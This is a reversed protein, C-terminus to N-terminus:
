EGDGDRGNAVTSRNTKTGLRSSRTTSSAAKRTSMKVAAPAPTMSITPTSLAVPSPPPQIVEVTGVRAVRDQNTTRRSRVVSRPRRADTIDVALFRGVVESPPPPSPLRYQHQTDGETSNAWGNSSEEAAGWRTRVVVALFLCTAAIFAITTAVLEAHGDDVIGKEGNGIPAQLSASSDMDFSPMTDILVIQPPPIPVIAESVAEILYEAFDEDLAQAFIAQALENLATNALVELGAIATIFTVLMAVFSAFQRSEAAPSGGVNASGDRLPEIVATVIQHHPSKTDSMFARVTLETEPDEFPSALDLEPPAFSVNRAARAQAEIKSRRLAEGLPSSPGEFDNGGSSSESVAVIAAASSRMQNRVKRALLAKDEPSTEAARAAIEAKLAPSMFLRERQQLADVDDDLLGRARRAARLAELRDMVWSALSERRKTEDERTLPAPVSPAPASFLELVSEGFIAKAEVPFELVFQKASLDEVPDLGAFVRRAVLVPNRAFLAAAARRSVARVEGDSDSLYRAIVSALAPDRVDTAGCEALDLVLAAVARRGNTNKSSGPADEILLIDLELAPVREYLRLLASAGASTCSTSQNASSALVATPVAVEKAFALTEEGGRMATAAAEVVACAALVVQPQMSGLQNAVGKALWRISTGPEDRIEREARVLADRRVAWPTVDLGAELVARAAEAEASAVPTIAGSSNGGFARRKQSMAPTTTGSSNALARLLGIKSPNTWPTGASGSGAGGTYRNQPVAALM